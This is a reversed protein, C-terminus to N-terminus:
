QISESGECFRLAEPADLWFGFVHLQLRSVKLGAIRWQMEQNGHM